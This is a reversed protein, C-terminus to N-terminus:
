RLSRLAGGWRLLQELLLDLEGARHPLPAFATDDFDDALSLAVTRRVDAVQLEGLILRLHESARAGGADMGYSVFGAAKDHWERYLFDIANKLVGPVSRNYEPTVFVFADFRAITQAWRRTHPQEYQGYAPPLPEDFVPLAQAALDILEFTVGDERARAHELVWRAVGQSRRGPRTSGAIVAVNLPKTM